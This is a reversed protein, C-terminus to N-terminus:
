INGNDEAKLAKEHEKEFAKKLRSLLKGYEIADSGKINVSEMAQIVINLDVNNLEIKM